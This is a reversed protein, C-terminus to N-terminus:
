LNYVFWASRDGLNESEDDKVSTLRKEEKMRNQRQLYFLNVISLVVLAVSMTIFTLTAKTYNPAPSLSGLLWTALIGGLNGFIFGIAISTARRAHPASNNAVWTTLSPGAGYSGTV